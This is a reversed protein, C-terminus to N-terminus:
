LTTESDAAPADGELKNFVRSGLRRDLAALDSGADLRSIGPSRRTCQLQFFGVRTLGTSEHTPSSGRSSSASGRVGGKEGSGMLTGVGARISGSEPTVGM